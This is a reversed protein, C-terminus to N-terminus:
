AAALSPPARIRLEVASFREVVRLRGGCRACGGGTRAPEDDGYSITPSLSVRARLTRCLPLLAGNRHALLGYYRIRVLGSPLLQLLFRRLFEDLALTLLRQQNGHASDRWSLTVQDQELSVLRQNSIAVRHPYRSLYRLAQGPGGLPPRVEVVWQNRYLTRVFAQFARPRSLPAPPRTRIHIDSDVM